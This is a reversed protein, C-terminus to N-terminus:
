TLGLEDTFQRADELHYVRSLTGVLQRVPIQQFSQADQLATAWDCVFEKYGWFQFNTPLALNSDHIFERFEDM